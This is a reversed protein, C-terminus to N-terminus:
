RKSPSTKDKLSAIFNMRWVLGQQGSMGMALLCFGDSTMNYARYERNRDNVYVAAVFMEGALQPSYLNSIDRVINDIDRVVHDHRKNFREAVVISSVVPTGDVSKIEVSEM